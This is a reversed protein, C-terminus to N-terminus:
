FLQFRQVKFNGHHNLRMGATTSFHFKGQYAATTILLLALQTKAVWFSNIFDCKSKTNAWTFGCRRVFKSSTQVHFLTDPTSFAFLHQSYGGEGLGIVYCRETVGSM